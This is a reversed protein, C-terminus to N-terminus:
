EGVRVGTPLELRLDVLPEGEHLALEHFAALLVAVAEAEEVPDEVVQHAAGM